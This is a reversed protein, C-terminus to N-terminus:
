KISLLFQEFGIKKDIKGSKINYDLESLKVIYNELTEKKFNSSDKIMYYARSPSIKMKASIEEQTLGKEVMMKVLLSEKFNKSIM